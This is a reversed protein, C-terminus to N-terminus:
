EEDKKEKKKEYLGELYGLGNGLFWIIVVTWWVPKSPTYEEIWLIPVSAILATLIYIIIKM